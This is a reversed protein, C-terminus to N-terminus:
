KWYKSLKEKGNKELEKELYPTLYLPPLVPIGTMKMYSNYIELTKIKKENSYGNKDMQGIIKEMREESVKCRNLLTFIGILLIVPIFLILIITM